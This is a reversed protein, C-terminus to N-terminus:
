LAGPDSNRRYYDEKDEKLDRRESTGESLSILSKYYTESPITGSASGGTEGRHHSRRGM